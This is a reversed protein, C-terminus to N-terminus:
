KETGFTQFDSELEKRMQQEVKHVQGTLGQLDAPMTAATYAVNRLGDSVEKTTYLGNVKSMESLKAQTDAALKLKRPNRSDHLLDETVSVLAAMEKDADEYVAVKRKFSEARLALAATVRKSNTDIRENTGVQLYWVWFGLAIPLAVLFTQFFKSDNKKKLETLIADKDDSRLQKSDHMAVGQKGIEALIDTKDAQRQTALDNTAKTLGAELSARASSLEQHLNAFETTVEQHFQSLAQELPTSSSPLVM